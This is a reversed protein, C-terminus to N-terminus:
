IDPHNLAILVINENARKIQIEYKKEETQCLALMNEM